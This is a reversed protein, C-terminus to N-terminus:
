KGEWACDICKYKASMDESVCGGLYFKTEDPESEPMGWMIERIGKDGKCVPCIRNRLRRKSQVYMFHHRSALRLGINMGSNTRIEENWECVRCLIQTTPFEGNPFSNYIQEHKKHFALFAKQLNLQQSENLSM